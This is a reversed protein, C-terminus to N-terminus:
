PHWVTGLHTGPTPAFVLFKANVRFHIHYRENNIMGSPDVLEVDSYSLVVGGLDESHRTM